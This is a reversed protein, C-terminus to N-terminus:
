KSGEAIAKLNAFGADFFENIAKTAADDNQEPKPINSSDARTYSGKVTVTSEGAGPGATVSLTPYFNSFQLTSKELIYEYKLKMGADDASRLKEYMTGGGKLKVTRYSADTGNEDKKTEVKTSEVSPHWAQENGFDKILSWVKAPAAKITVAKEFRLAAAGHAAATLPVLPLLAIAIFAFIKKM